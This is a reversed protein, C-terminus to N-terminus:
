AQADPHMPSQTHVAEANDSAVSDAFNSMANSLVKRLSQSSAGSVKDAESGKPRDTREALFEQMERALAAANLKQQSGLLLTAPPPRREIAMDRVYMTLLGLALLASSERPYPAVVPEVASASAAKALARFEPSMSPNDIMGVAWHAFKQLSVEQRMRGSQRKALPPLLPKLRDDSLMRLTATYQHSEIKNAREGDTDHLRRLANSTPRINHALLVGYQVSVVGRERWAEWDIPPRRPPDGNENGSSRKRVAAPPANTHDAM